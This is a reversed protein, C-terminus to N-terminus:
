DLVYGVNSWASVMGPLREFHLGKFLLIGEGFEMRDGLTWEKSEM